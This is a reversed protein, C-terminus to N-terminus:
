SVYFFYLTKIKYLTNSNVSWYNNDGTRGMGGMRPQNLNGRGSLDPRAIVSLPISERERPFSM